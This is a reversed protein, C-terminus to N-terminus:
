LSLACGDAVNSWEEQVLYHHGHNLTVNSGDSQIAGYNDQCKDGIEGGELAHTQTEFWAGNSTDPDTISEFQEHSVVSIEADAIWDGNPSANALSTVYDLCNQPSTRVDNIEAYIVITGSQQNFSGHYGCLAYDPTPFSCAPRSSRDICEQAGYGLFVFFQTNLGASWTKARMARSVEAQIDTDFLPDSRTAAAPACNQGAADCHVYPSTDVYTGGLKATNQITGRYDWYQTLINYFPTGGVDEFYRALLTEFSTTSGQPEFVYRQPLWFILYATSTSMVPGDHYHIPPCSGTPCIPFNFTTTAAPAVAVAHLAQDAGAVCDYADVPLARIAYLGSADTTASYTPPSETNMRQATTPSWCTVEVGSAAVISNEYTVRGSLTGPRLQLTPCVFSAPGQSSVCTEGSQSPGFSLTITRGASGPIIASVPVYYPDRSATCHYVDSVAVSLSYTGDASSTAAVSNCRVTARIGAADVGGAERSSISDGYVTGSIRAMDAPFPFCGVQALCCAVVLLLV